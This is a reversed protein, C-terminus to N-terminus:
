IGYSAASTGPWPCFLSTKETVFRACSDFRGLTPSGFRVPKSSSAAPSVPMSVPIAPCASPQPATRPVTLLMEATTAPAPSLEVNISLENKWGPIARLVSDQEPVLKLDVDITTPRWGLLVATAGDTLYCAGEQEAAADLAAM